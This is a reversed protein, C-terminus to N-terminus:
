LTRSLFAAHRAQERESLCDDRSRSRRLGEFLRGSRKPHNQRAGSESRCASPQAADIGHRSRARTGDPRADRSAERGAASSLRAQAFLQLEGRGDARIAADFRRAKGALRRLFSDRKNGCRPCGRSGENRAAVFGEGAGDDHQRQSSQRDLARFRNGVACLTERAEDSKAQRTRDDGAHGAFARDGVARSHTAHRVGKKDALLDCEFMRQRLNACRQTRFGDRSRLLRCRRAARSVLALRHPRRKEVESPMANVQALLSRVHQRRAEIAAPSYDTLKHDWTHLGADSSSVPYNRNRWNYYDQALRKLDAPAKPDQAPISSFSVVMVACSILFLTVLRM